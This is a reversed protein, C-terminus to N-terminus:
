RSGEEFRQMRFGVGGCVGVGLAVGVVVGIIQVM